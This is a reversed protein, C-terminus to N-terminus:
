KCVRLVKKHNPKNAIVGDEQTLEAALFVASTDIGKHLLDNILRENTWIELDRNLSPASNEPFNVDDSDYTVNGSFTVQFMDNIM